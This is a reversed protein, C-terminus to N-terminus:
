SQRFERRLWERAPFSGKLFTPVTKMVAARQEVINGVDVIDLSRLAERVQFVRLFAVVDDQPSAPPEDIESLEVSEASAHHPEVLPVYEGVGEDRADIHESASVTRDSDHDAQTEDLEPSNRPGLRSASVQFQTPTPTPWLIDPSLVRDHGSQLTGVSSPVLVLRRTPRRRRPQSPPVEEEARDTMPFVGPWKDGGVADIM